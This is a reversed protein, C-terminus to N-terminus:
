ASPTSYAANKVDSVIDKDPIPLGTLCLLSHRGYISLTESNLAIIGNM